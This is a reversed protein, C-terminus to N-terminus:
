RREWRGDAYFAYTEGRDTQVMFGREFEQMTGQYGRECDVANGLRSRVAPTDCWVQGFGRKPTPPCQSPTDPAPCSFEPSGEVFPTHQVLWWTQDNFLVLVQTRDIPERWFMKGGYFNEEAVLGAIVPSTPCGIADQVAQWAARFPGSATPCRPTYTPAPTPTPPAPALALTASEVNCSVYASGSSIWGLEGTGSVRGWIWESDSSRALPELTAGRSLAKIPPAYVTGPGYRLNLASAIVTCLPSSTPKQVEPPTPTVPQPAPAESSAATITPPVLTDAPPPTLPMPTATVVVVVPAPTVCAAILLGALLVLSASGVLLMRGKWM